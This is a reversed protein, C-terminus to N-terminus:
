YWKPGLMVAKSGKLSWELEALGATEKVTSKSNHCIGMRTEAMLKFEEQLCSM